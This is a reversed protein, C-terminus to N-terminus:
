NEDDLWNPLNPECAQNLIKPNAMLSRLTHIRASIFSLIRLTVNSM